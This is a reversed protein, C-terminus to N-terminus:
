VEKFNKKVENYQYEQNYLKFKYGDESSFPMRVHPIEEIRAIFEREQRTRQRVTMDFWEEKTYLDEFRFSFSTRSKEARLTQIREEFTM